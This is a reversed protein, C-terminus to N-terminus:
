YPKNKTEVPQKFNEQKVMGQKGLYTWVIAKSYQDFVKNVEKLTTENVDKTFNDMMEWGGAMESVGLANAQNATTELTLYYQTLFTERTDTLEEESFGEKKIKNIEDVMVQMSQEPDTTSIYIVSYPNFVAAQAYFAAPAYSLSRKTRLETFYRDGLINMAIRMAVGEKTNLMPASMVGRIYNTAIDRDEIFVKGETLITQQERATTTGQPLKALSEKIAKTIEAETINGVVVIFTRKKVIIQSYYKQVQDLTLANLSEATGNPEKRYNSNPFANRRSILALHGDPDSENSKAGAVLQQQLITFEDKSLAPNMVADAFLNWSKDWFAKICTMSIFGYDLNTAASFSTGIKESETKFDLKSLNKTGGDIMLSLTMNEIGELKDDYNATGGEIFMRVSIVEKPTTKLIVKIGDINLEKTTNDAFTLCTTAIFALLLTGTKLIINKM